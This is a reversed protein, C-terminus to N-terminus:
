GIDWYKKLANRNRRRKLHILGHTIADLEHSSGSFGRERLWEFRQSETLSGGTITAKDSRSQRLLWVKPRFRRAELAVAGIVESAVARGVFGPEVVFDEVVIVDAWPLNFELFGDLGESIEGSNILEHDFFLAWGTTEGPDLAIVRGGRKPPPLKCKCQHVPPTPMVLVGGDYRKQQEDM